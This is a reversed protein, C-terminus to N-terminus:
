VFYLDINLKENKMKGKQENMIELRRELIWDRYYNLFWYNREMQRGLIFISDWVNRVVNRISLSNVM